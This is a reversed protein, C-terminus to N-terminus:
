ENSPFNPISNSYIHYDGNFLWREFNTQKNDTGHMIYSPFLFLDGLIPSVPEIFENNYDIVNWPWISTSGHVTPDMFWLNPLEGSLYFYYTYSFLAGQHDHLSSATSDGFNLYSNDMKISINSTDIDLIDKYEKASKNIFEFIESFLPNKYEKGYTPSNVWYRKQLSSYGHSSFLENKNTTVNIDLNSKANNLTELHFDLPKEINTQYIKHPFKNHIM